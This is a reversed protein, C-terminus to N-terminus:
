TMKSSNGTESYSLSNIDQSKTKNQSDTCMVTWVARKDPQLTLDMGEFINQWIEAPNVWEGMRNEVKTVNEGPM